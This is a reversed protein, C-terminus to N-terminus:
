EKGSPKRRDSDYFIECVLVQNGWNLATQHKDFYLDLRGKTIAFGRDKVMALEYGPVNIKTGFPISGDAAIALGGVPTGNAFFGDAWEGCCKECPCYATVTFTSFIGSRVSLNPDPIPASSSSVLVEKPPPPSTNNLKQHTILLVIFFCISFVTINVKNLM